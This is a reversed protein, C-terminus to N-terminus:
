NQVYFQANVITPNVFAAVGVPVMASLSTVGKVYFYRTHDPNLILQSLITPDTNAAANFTALAGGTFSIVLDQGSFMGSWTIRALVAGSPFRLEAPTSAGTLVISRAQPIPSVALGPYSARASRLAAHEESDTSQVYQLVDPAVGDALLEGVDAARETVGFDMSQLTDGVERAGVADHRVGQILVGRGDPDAMPDHPMGTLPGDAPARLEVANGTNVRTPQPTAYRLLRGILTGGRAPAPADAPRSPLRLVPWQTRLSHSQGPTVIGMDLLGVRAADQGRGAGGIRDNAFTM